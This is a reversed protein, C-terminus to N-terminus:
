GVDTEHARSEWMCWCASHARIPVCRIQVENRQAAESVSDLERQMLSHEVELQRIRARLAAVDANGDAMDTTAVSMVDDDM